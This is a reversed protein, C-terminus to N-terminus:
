SVSLTATASNIVQGGATIRLELTYQGACNSEYLAVSALMNDTYGSGPMLNPTESNESKYNCPGTVIFTLTVPGPHDSKNQIMWEVTSGGPRTITTKEPKFQMIDVKNVPPAAAAASSSTATSKSASSNAASAANSKPDETLKPSATTSFNDQNFVKPKTASQTQGAGKAKRARDALSEPQPQPTAKPAASAQSGQTNGAPSAAPQASQSSNSSSNQASRATLALSLSLAVVVAFRSELKM